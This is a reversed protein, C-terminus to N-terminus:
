TVISGHCSRFGLGSAERMIVLSLKTRLSVDRHASCCQVACTNCACSFIGSAYPHNIRFSRFQRLGRVVCRMGLTDQLL